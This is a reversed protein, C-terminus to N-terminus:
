FERKLQFILDEIQILLPQIDDNILVFDALPLKQEDNWQKSIRELVQEKSCRDRERVRNIKLELPATVLVTKDMLQYAGTEFLIAAENFIISSNQKEAWDAFAQRVIPHIIENVKLRITDDQFLKEVLFPTNLQNNLYVNEGMLKTLKQRVFPNTNVIEKSLQDSYFVPFNMVELIKCVISKGSGIGGTIGVKM